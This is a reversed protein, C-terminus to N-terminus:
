YESSPNNRREEELRIDREWIMKREGPPIYSLDESEVTEEREKKAWFKWFPVKESEITSGQYGPYKPAGSAPRSLFQESRNPIESVSEEISESILHEIPDKESISETDNEPNYDDSFKYKYALKEWKALLHMIFRDRMEPQNSVRTYQYVSLMERIIIALDEPLKDAFEETNDDYKNPFYARVNESFFGDLLSVALAYIDFIGHVYPEPYPMFGPTGSWSKGTSCVRALGVDGLYAKIIAGTKHDFDVLINDPKIDGHSICRGHIQMYVIARMCDRGVIALEELTNIKKSNGGYMQMVIKDQSFGIMSVINPHRLEKLNQVEELVNKNFIIKVAVPTGCYLARKVEGFSGRGIYEDRLLPWPKLYFLELM